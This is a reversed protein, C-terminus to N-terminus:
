FSLLFTKGFLLLDFHLNSNGPIKKQNSCLKGGIGTASKVEQHQQQFRAMDESSRNDLLKKYGESESIVKMVRDSLTNHYSVFRNEDGGLTNLADVLLAFKEKTKLTEDYLEIFYEFYPSINQNLFNASLLLLVYISPNANCSLCTVPQSGQCFLSPYPSIRSLDESPHQRFSRQFIQGYLPNSLHPFKKERSFSIYFYQFIPKRSYKLQALSPFDLRRAHESPARHITLECTSMAREVTWVRDHKAQNTGTACGTEDTPEAMTWRHPISNLRWHRPISLSLGKKLAVYTAGCIWM